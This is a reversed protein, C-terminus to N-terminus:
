ASLEATLEMTQAGDRDRTWLQASQGDAALKGELFFPAGDYLPRIARFALSRVRVGPRERQLAELLLTATLPGHVVLGPYGEVETAYPRDYHIRHSNFTLASYRFLLVPSPDVEHSWASDAPAPQPQAAPANPGAAERYALDQEEVLAPGESGFVEHRVSVLVFRGSRGQKSTVREITSVRKIQEGVRLPQLFRVRSGAWMRRPLEVPPLFGGRRPHGDSGLEATPVTPPFFAWHWLPPLEAGVAADFSRDLTAALAAVATPTVVDGTAESKGIWAQYNADTM